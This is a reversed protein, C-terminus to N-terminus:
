NLDKIKLRDNPNLYCEKNQYFRINDAIFALSSKYYSKGCNITNNLSFYSWIVSKRM